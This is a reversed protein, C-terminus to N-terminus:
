PAIGAARATSIRDDLRHDQREIGIAHRLKLQQERQKRFLSFEDSPFPLFTLGSRCKYRHFRSEGFVLCSPLAQQFVAEIGAVGVGGRSGGKGAVGGGIDRVGLGDRRGLVLEVHDEGSVGRDIVAAPDIVAPELFRGIWNGFECPVVGGEDSWFGGLFESNVVFDDLKFGGEGRTGGVVFALVALRRDNGQFHVALSQLNGNENGEAM